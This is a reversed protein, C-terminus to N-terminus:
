LFLIRVVYVHAIISDCPSNNVAQDWAWDGSMFDRWRRNHSGDPREEWERYPTFDLEDKFDPNGLMNRVVERPDRYFVDYEKNMWPAEGESRDGAYELRFSEWPLEGTLTSDIVNYLDRHDAFPPDDGHVALTIGWLHLLKDINGASMQTKTFLFEATEFELRNRYPTWDSSSKTTFAPPPAKPDIFEGAENCIRGTLAFLRSCWFCSPLHLQEGNLSLHYDRIFKKPQCDNQDPVQAEDINSQHQRIRFSHQHVARLHQTLASQNKLQHPCGPHTCPVLQVNFQRRRLQTRPVAQPM